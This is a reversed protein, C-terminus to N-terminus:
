CNPLEPSNFTRNDLDGSFHDIYYLIKKFKQSMPLEMYMFLSQVYVPYDFFYEEYLPLHLNDLMDVM